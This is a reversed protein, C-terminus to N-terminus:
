AVLTLTLTIPNSCVYKIPSIEAAPALKRANSGSAQPKEVQIVQMLEKAVNDLGGQREIAQSAEVLRKRSWNVLKTLFDLWPFMDELKEFDVLDAADQADEGERFASLITEIRDNIMVLKDHTVAVGFMGKPSGNELVDDFYAKEETLEEPEDFFNRALIDDPSFNDQEKADRLAAITSQTKFDLFMDFSDTLLKSIGYQVVKDFSTIFPAPFNELDALAAHIAVGHQEYVLFEKVMTALNAVHVLADPRFSGEPAHKGFLKRMIFQLQIYTERTGYPERVQKFDDEAERLSIARESGSIKLDKFLSEVQDRSADPPALLDLIDRASFFLEPLREVASPDIDALAKVSYSTTNSFATTASVQSLNSPSQKHPNPMNELENDEDDQDDQNTDEEAEPEEEEVNEAM